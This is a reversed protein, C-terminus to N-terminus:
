SDRRRVDEHQSAERAALEFLHAARRFDRNNEYIEAARVLEGRREALWAQERWSMPQPTAWESYGPLETVPVAPRPTVPQREQGTAARPVDARDAPPQPTIVPEPEPRKDFADLAKAVDAPVQLDLPPRNGTWLTWIPQCTTLDFALARDSRIVVVARTESTPFLRRRAEPPLAPQLRRGLPLYLPGPGIRYVPEGVALQDLLGGPALVLHHDRGRALLASEALPRGALLDPLCALDADDLLMADVATGSTTAAVLRLEPPDPRTGDATSEPPADVLEYDDTLRVLGAGDHYTGGSRTTVAHCGFATEALVWTGTTSHGALTALHHDPLPSALHDQVLLHEGVRRCTLVFPDRRLASIFAPPLPGSPSRLVVEFRTDRRDSEDFLPSLTVVRYTVALDLDLARQVVAALGFGPVLVALESRRRAPAPHLGATRVVELLGVDGLDPPTDPDAGPGDGSPPPGWLRDRVLGGHLEVYPTGRTASTLERGVDIPLEAVAWWAGASPSHAIRLTDARGLDGVQGAFVLTAAATHFRGGVRDPSVPGPDSGGTGPSPPPPSGPGSPADDRLETVVGRPPRRTGEAPPNPTPASGGPAAPRQNPRDQDRRYAM